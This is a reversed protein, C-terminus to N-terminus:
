KAGHEYGVEGRAFTPGVELARSKCRVDLCQLGALAFLM